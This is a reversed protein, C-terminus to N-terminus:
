KSGGIVEWTEYISEEDPVTKISRTPLLNPRGAEHWDRARCLCELLRDSVFAWVPVRLGLFGGAAIYDGLTGFDKRAEQSLELWQHALKTEKIQPLGTQTKAAHTLGLQPGAQKRLLAFQEALHPEVEAPVAMPAREQPKGFKVGLWSAAAEIPLLRAAQRVAGLDPPTRIQHESQQKGTTKSVFPLPTQSEAATRKLSVARRSVPRYELLGMRQLRGQMRYSTARSCPGRAGRVMRGVAEASATCRAPVGQSLACRVAYFALERAPLTYWAEMPLHVVGARLGFPVRETPSYMTTARPRAQATLLGQATLLLLAARVAPMSLKDGHQALTEVSAWCKRPEHRCHHLVRCLVALATPSQGALGAAVEIPLRITDWETAM